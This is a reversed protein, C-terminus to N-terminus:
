GRSRTPTPRRKSRSPRKRQSRIPRRRRSAPPKVKPGTFFGGKDPRDKRMHFLFAAVDGEKLKKLDHFILYTPPFMPRVKRWANKFSKLETETDDGPYMSLLGKAVDYLAGPVPGLPVRKGFQVAPGFFAWSPVDVGTSEKILYAFFAATM